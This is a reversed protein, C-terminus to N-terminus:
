TGGTGFRVTCTMKVAVPASGVLGPFFRWGLVANLAAEHLGAEEEAASDDSEIISLDKPAGDEGITATVRIDAVMGMEAAVEPYVPRPQIMLVPASAGDSADFEISEDQPGKLNAAVDRAMENVLEESPGAELCGLVAELLAKPKDLRAHCMALLAHAEAEEPAEKVTKKLLKIADKCEGSQMLSRAEGCDDCGFVPSAAHLMGLCTVILPLAKM